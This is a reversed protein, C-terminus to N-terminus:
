HSSRRNRRPSQEHLARAILEKGTGTEGQILVTSSTSAVLGVERMVARLGQNDGIIGRGTDRVAQAAQMPYREASGSSYNNLMM